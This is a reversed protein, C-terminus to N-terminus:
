SKLQMGVLRLDHVAFVRVTSPVRLVDAKIEKAIGEPTANGAAPSAEEHAERRSHTHRRLFCDALLNPIPVELTATAHVQRADGLLNIRLHSTPDVVVSGEIAGLQNEECSADILM